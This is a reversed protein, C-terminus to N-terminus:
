AVGLLELLGDLSTISPVGPLSSGQQRDIFVPRLGAALAGQVDASDHDGVHMASAAQVGLRQLAIQFIEPEPKHSGVQASAIVASFYRKYGLGAVIGPLSGDWNSIIGLRYGAARLRALAPEVDSFFAWSSPKLYHQFLTNAIREHSAPPLGLLDCLHRYLELWLDVSRREDSWFSADDEYMQEYLGYMSGIQEGVAAASVPCGLATAVEAFSQQEPVATHLLTNGADFFVTTLGDRLGAENIAEPDLETV